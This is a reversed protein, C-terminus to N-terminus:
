GFINKLSAKLVDEDLEGLAKVQLAVESYDDPLSALIEDRKAELGAVLIEYYGSVKEEEDPTLSPELGEQIVDKFIGTNYENGNTPHKLCLNFVIRGTNETARDHLLWDFSVDGTDPDTSLTEIPDADANEMDVSAYNVFVKYDKYQEAFDKPLIITAGSTHQDNYTALTAKKDAPVLTATTPDLYFKKM